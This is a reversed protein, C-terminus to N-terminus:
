QPVRVGITPPDFTATTPGEGKDRAALLAGTIVGAAVAVAAAGIGWALRRRRRHEDPTADSYPMGVVTPEVVEAVKLAPVRLAVAANDGSALALTRAELQEGGRQVRLTYTGPDLAMPAGLDESRLTREDLLIEGGTGEVLITLHALRKEASELLEPIRTAIDSSTRTDRQVARLLETAEVLQGLEILAVALNFRVVPSDRLALAERFKQAAADWQAADSERVGAEFLSRAAAAKEPDQALASSAHQSAGWMLSCVVCFVLRTWM